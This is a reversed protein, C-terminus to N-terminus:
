SQKKFSVKPAGFAIIWRPKAERGLMVRALIFSPPQDIESRSRIDVMHILSDGVFFDNWLTDRGEHLVPSNRPLDEYINNLLKAEKEVCTKASSADWTIQPLDQPVLNHHSADQLVFRRVLITSLWQQLEADAQVARVGNWFGLYELDACYKLTLLKRGSEIVQAEDMTYAGGLHKIDQSSLVRLSSPDHHGAGQIDHPPFPHTWPEAEASHPSAAGKYFLLSPPLRQGSTVPRWMSPVQSSQPLFIHSQPEAGPYMGFPYVKLLHGPTSHVVPWEPPAGTNRVEAHPNHMYSPQWAPGQPGGFSLVPSPSDVVQYPTYLQGSRPPAFPVRPGTAAMVVPNSTIWTFQKAADEGANILPHLKDPDLDMPASWVSSLHLLWTLVRVGGGLNFIRPM